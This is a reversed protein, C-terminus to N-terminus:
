SGVVPVTEELAERIHARVRGEPQVFVEEKSQGGEDCSRPGVVWRIHKRGEGTVLTLPTEKRGSIVVQSNTKKVAV